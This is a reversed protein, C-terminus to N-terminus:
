ENKDYQRNIRIHNTTQKESNGNAIMFKHKNQRVINSQLQNVFIYRAFPFEHLLM